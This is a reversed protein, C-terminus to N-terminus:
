KKDFADDGLIPGAPKKPATTTATATATPPPTPEATVVPKTTTATPPPAKQTHTPKFKPVAKVHASSSPEVSASPITVTSTSPTPVALPALETPVAPGPPPSQQKMFFAVGGGIAAIGILAGIVYPARRPRLSPMTTSAPTNATMAAVTSPENPEPRELTVFSSPLTQTSPKAPPRTRDTASPNSRSSPRAVTEIDDGALAQDILSRIRQLSESGAENVWRGIERQSPAPGLVRAAERLAQAFEGATAWRRDLSRELARAIVQSVAPPVSDDIEHLLSIPATNVAQLIQIQDDGTFLRRGLLTEWAVIGLAFIDARRDVPRGSAQEPSFYAFKGKLEGTATSTRRMMARAIGFDTVRARGDAGVLVNHPSIDRHVIGLQIGTPTTAEHADDLGQAAQAILEVAIPV